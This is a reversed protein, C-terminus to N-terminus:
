FQVGTFVNRVTNEKIVIGSAQSDLRDSIQIGWIVGSLTNGSIVVNSVPLDDGNVGDNLKQAISIAYTAKVSATSGFNVTNNEVVANQIGRLAFGRRYQTGTLGAVTDTIVNNSATLDKVNRLHISYSGNTADPSLGHVYNYSINMDSGFSLSNGQSLIGQNFGLIDNYTISVNRSNSGITVGVTSTDPSTIKFGSLILGNIESAIRVAGSVVAESQRTAAPGPAISNNPGLITLAKDISVNGTYTGAGVNITDGANAATVAAQITAYACGSPCVNLTAATASTAAVVSGITLTSAILSLTLLSRVIRLPFRAEPDFLTADPDHSNYYL